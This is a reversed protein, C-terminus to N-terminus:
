GEDGNFPTQGEQPEPAAILFVGLVIFGVLCAMGLIRTFTAEFPVMLLVGVVFLLPWVRRATM